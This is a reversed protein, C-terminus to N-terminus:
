GEDKGHPVGNPGLGDLGSGVRLAGPMVQVRELGGAAAGRERLRGGLLRPYQRRKEGAGLRQARQQCRLRLPQVDELLGRELVRAPFLTKAILGGAPELRQQFPALVRQREFSRALELLALQQADARAVQPPQSLDRFDGAFEGIQRIDAQLADPLDAVALQGFAVAARIM